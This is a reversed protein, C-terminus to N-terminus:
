SNRSQRVNKNIEKKILNKLKKFPLCELIQKSFAFLLKKIAESIHIGRSRLYFIEKENLKGVITGHSCKVDEAFIELQPNAKVESENSLLINTSKQIANTKKATKLVIIKGNFNTKARKDFLGKYIDRSKGNPCFHAILTNHIIHEELISLGNIHSLIEKGLQYISLFNMISVGCFSFTNINCYSRHEQFICTQGLFYTPTRDNKINCYDLYSDAHLYVETESNYIRNAKDVLSLNKHREIIKVCSGKGLFIFNRTKFLFSKTCTGTSIHLIEIPNELFLGETFYLFAEEKSFFREYYLDVKKLSRNYYYIGDIFVFRFSDFDELLFHLKRIKKVSSTFLTYNLDIAYKHNKEEQKKTEFLDIAKSRLNYMFRNIPKHLQTKVTYFYVLNKKFNM